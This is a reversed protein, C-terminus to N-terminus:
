RIRWVGIRQVDNEDRVVGVLRGERVAYSGIEVDVTVAGLLDGATAFVDFTTRGPLARATRVWLRDLDDFRLADLNHFHPQLPDIERERPTSSPCARSCRISAEEPERSSFRSGEM